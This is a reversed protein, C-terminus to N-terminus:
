FVNETVSINIGGVAASRVVLQEGPLLIFDANGIQITTFGISDNGISFNAQAQGPAVNTVSVFLVRDTTRNMALQQSEGLVVVGSFTSRGQPRRFPGVVAAVYARALVLDQVSADTGGLDFAIKM